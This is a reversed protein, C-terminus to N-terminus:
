KTVFDVPNLGRGKFYLDIVERVAGCGGKKSSVYDVIDILDPYADAVAIRLGVQRMLPIDMIDNGIFATKAFDINLGTSKMYETLLRHKNGHDQIVHKIKLDRMRSATADSHRNSVIIVELGARMALVMDLGDGINFRKMEFGDPGMYLSDDTLVGDVDLILAEITALRKAMQTRTLYKKKGRAM